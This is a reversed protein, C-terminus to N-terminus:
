GQGPIRHIIWMIIKYIGIGTEVAIFLEVIIMLTDIPFITNITSFYSGATDVASGFYSNISVNDFLRIPETLIWSFWYFIYLLSTTLM